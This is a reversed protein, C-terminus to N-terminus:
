VEVKTALCFSIKGANFTHAAKLLACLDKLLIKMKAKSKNLDSTTGFVHLDEGSTHLVFSPYSAFTKSNGLDSINIMESLKTIFMGVDLSITQDLEWGRVEKSAEVLQVIDQTVKMAEQLELPPLVEQPLPDEQQILAQDLSSIVEAQDPEVTSEQKQELNPIRDNFPEAETPPRYLRKFNDTFLEVKKFAAIQDERAGTMWHEAPITCNFLLFGGQSEDITDFRYLHLTDASSYYQKAVLDKVVDKITVGICFMFKHKSVDLEYFDLDILQLYEAPIKKYGFVTTISKRAEATLGRCFVTIM